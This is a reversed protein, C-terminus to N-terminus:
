LKQKIQGLISAAEELKKTLVAHVGFQSGKSKESSNTTHNAQNTVESEREHTQISLTLNQGTLCQSAQPGSGEIFNHINNYNSINLNSFSLVM